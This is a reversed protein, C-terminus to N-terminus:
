LQVKAYARMGYAARKAIHFNLGLLAAMGELTRRRKRRPIARWKRLKRVDELSVGLRRSM